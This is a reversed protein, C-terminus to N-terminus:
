LAGGASDRAAVATGLMAPEVREALRPVVPEPAPSASERKRVMVWRVFELVTRGHQNRGTTRVWVVGSARNSNERVGIVESTASLTDGPYVAALFRCEAYGLNAIANLSIDPVSKGFVTHFVLLDDIPSRPYGIGQAFADSSQVAFRPGYLGMYVAVDGATITRPTAHQLVQGVAFDEFYNGRNTKSATM